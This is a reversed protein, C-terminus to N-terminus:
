KQYFLKGVKEIHFILSANKINEFYQIDCLYPFNSEDIEDQICALLRYDNTKAHRIVLDIDSRPTFNGKARSGYVIVSGSTLYEAFCAQLLKAQKSTLGFPNM